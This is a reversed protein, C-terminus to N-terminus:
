KSKKANKAKMMVNMKAKKMMAEKQKESMTENTDIKPKKM